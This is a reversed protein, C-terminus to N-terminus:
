CQVNLMIIVSAERALAASRRNCCFHEHIIRVRTFRRARPFKDLQPILWLLLEYCSQVAQPVTPTTM